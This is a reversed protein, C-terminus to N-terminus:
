EEKIGAILAAGAAIDNKDQESQPINGNPQPVVGQVGSQSIDKQSELLFNAGADQQAKLAELALDGASMKEEGYKAKKVLEKDAIKDAIEDISQLRKVEKDVAEDIAQQNREGQVSNIAETRIQNVLEPDSKMLEEYTMRTNGGTSNNKIVDPEAGTTVEKEVPIYDPINGLGRASMPVGNVTLLSKKANISMTVSEGTDVIEDAFGNEIADQASMWATKSMMNKIKEKDIGTTECYIEAISKDIAEVQKISEKMDNANYYGFMFSSAGHIMTLSGNCVKRNGKKAGQAIISAASAALGDVITYVNGKFEKMRNYIAVGAFVEGGPSNIHFTVKSKNKLEEMDNLFDSLVIYLGEVREGNWFDTPVSSVVEGYMNIEASDDDENLAINYPKMDSPVKMGVTVPGNIYKNQKWTETMKWITKKEMM